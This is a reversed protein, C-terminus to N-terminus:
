NGQVYGFLPDTLNSNQGGCSVKVKSQDVSGPPTIVGISGSTFDSKIGYLGSPIVITYAPSGSLPQNVHMNSLYFLYRFGVNEGPSAIYSISVCPFGKNKADNQIYEVVAKRKNYGRVNHDPLTITYIISRALFSVICLWVLVKTHKSYHLLWALVAIVFFLFVTNISSFYYESILKSSLTFFFIVSLTWVSLILLTQKKFVSRKAWFIGLFIVFLFILKPPLFLERSPYFFLSVVNGSIQDIVQIFKSIGIEGGQNNGLSFFLNRTQSFDYRLEFLFLPVSPIIFAISAKVLDGVSPLKKSLILAIPVTILIPALSFNIHWILGALLGLLPFVKLNGRGLMLVTYLFWIEWLSTTITPVVWRDLSVRSLLVAQLFAALLGSSVDFLNKFVWYFSIVGLTGVLLPLVLVGVPDMGTLLFFPILLYYFAPGIFIGQTSTEQGILRLHKNVVIDRVIWSYLDGDHAFEFREMAQYSRLFIAILVVIVLIVLSKTELFNVIRSTALDLKPM